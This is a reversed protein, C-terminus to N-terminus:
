PKMVKIITLYRKQTVFINEGFLLHKTPIFNIFGNEALANTTIEGSKRFDKRKCQVPDYIEYRM